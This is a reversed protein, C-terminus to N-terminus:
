RPVWFGGSRSDDSNSSHRPCQSCGQIGDSCPASEDIFPEHARQAGREAIPLRIWQGHRTAQTDAAGGVVSRDPPDFPCRREEHPCWPHGVPGPFRGVGGMADGFAFESAPFTMFAIKLACLTVVSGNAKNGELEAFFQPLQEWMLTPHPTPKHKGKTGRSGLAPNQDREMWGQDIAHDIHSLRREPSDQM